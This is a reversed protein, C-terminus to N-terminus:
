LIFDGATLGTVGALYIAMEAGDTGTTNAEVFTSGADEYIRVQGAATFADSGIFTFTQNGTTGSVADVRSLDIVDLGLEYGYVTDMLALTSESALTYRFEDAGGEAELIDADAGGQLTDKGDGGYLVDNGADGKLLDNGEGGEMIDNQTGGSLQDNGADGVLSDAGADGFLRDNGLGGNVTDSGRGGYVYDLGGDGNLLDNGDQGRLTDGELGGALVDNGLGGDLLDTGAGGSLNDNGVDGMLTDAGADGQFWDDGVGGNMLDNGNGGSANDGALGGNITDAGSGGNAHAHSVYYGGGFDQGNTMFILDNGSGGEQFEGFESGGVLTDDGAGGSMFTFNGGGTISDNGTAGWVSDGGGGTTIVDDGAGGILVDDNTSGTLTDNGAGGNWELSVGDFAFLVDDETTAVNAFGGIPIAEGGEFPGELIYDQPNALFGNLSALDTIVPIDGGMFFYTEIGEAPQFFALVYATKGPAWTIQFVQKEIFFSQDLMQLPLDGARTMTVSGSWLDHVQAFKPSTGTEDIWGYHYLLSDQGDQRVLELTSARYDEYTSATYNIVRSFGQITYTTM